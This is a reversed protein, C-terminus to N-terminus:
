MIETAIKTFSSFLASHDASSIATTIKGSYSDLIAIESEIKYIQVLILSISESQCNITNISNDAILTKLTFNSSTIQEVLIKPDCFQKYLGVTIGVVVVVVLIGLLMQMAELDGNFRLSHNINKASGELLELKELVDSLDKRILILEQHRLELTYNLFAVEICAFTLLSFTFLILFM